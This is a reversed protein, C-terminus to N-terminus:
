ARLPSTRATTRPRLYVIKKVNSGDNNISMFWHPKSLDCYQIVNIGNKELIEETLPIPEIEDAAHWGIYMVKEGCTNLRVYKDRLVKVTNINGNYMVIDGLMLQSTKM